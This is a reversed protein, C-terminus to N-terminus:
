QMCIDSHGSPVSGEQYLTPKNTAVMHCYNSTMHSVTLVILYGSNRIQKCTNKSARSTMLSLPTETVCDGDMLDPRALLMSSLYLLSLECVLM